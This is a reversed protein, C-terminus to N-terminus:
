ETTKGLFYKYLTVMHVKGEPIIVQDEMGSNILLATDSKLSKMAESLGNIERKLTERESLDFCVNILRISNSSEYCFDVEQRGKFYFIGTM